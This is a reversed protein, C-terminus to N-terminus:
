GNKGTPLWRLTIEEIMNNTVLQYGYQYGIPLWTSDESESPHFEGRSEGPLEGVLVPLNFMALDIAASAIAGSTEGSVAGEIEGALTVVQSGSVM